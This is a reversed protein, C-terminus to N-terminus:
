TIKDLIAQLVNQYYFKNSAIFHNDIGITELIQSFELVSVFKLAEVENEAPKMIGEAAEIDSIFTHHFENDIVGNNYQQFCDFVGIKHLNKKKVKLNIEEKIERIAAGKLTEGADVHGAVSVDWLMPHLEKKSSRQALLIHGNTNYFWIHVTNHYHGKAHIESKLATKDTPKGDKTLIDIYEDMSFKKYFPHFVTLLSGLIM